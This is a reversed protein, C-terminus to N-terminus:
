SSRSSPGRAARAGARLRFAAQKGLQPFLKTRGLVRVEVIGRGAALAQDGPDAEQQEAEDEDDLKEGAPVRGDV